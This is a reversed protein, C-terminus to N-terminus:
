GNVRRAQESGDKKGAQESGGNSTGPTEGDSPNKEKTLTRMLQMMENNQNELREIMTRTEALQGILRRVKGRLEAVEPNAEQKLLKARVFESVLGIVVAFLSIGGVLVFATILRGIPTKPTLDGYGVTTITELTFWAGDWFTKFTQPEFHNLLAASSFVLLSAAAGVVYIPHAAFREMTWKLVRVAHALTGVLQMASLPVFRSLVFIDNLVTFPGQSYQPVWTICIVFELFHSKMYRIPQGSVVAYVLFSTVYALWIVIRLVVQVASWSWGLYPVTWDSAVFETSVVLAVAAISLV